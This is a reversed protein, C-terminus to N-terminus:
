KEAENDKVELEDEKELTVNKLVNFDKESNFKLFLEKNLYRLLFFLRDDGRFVLSKIELSEKDYILYCGDNWVHEFEDLWKSSELDLNNEIMENKIDEFITENKDHWVMLMPTPRLGPKYVLKYKDFSEEELEVAFELLEEEKTNVENHEISLDIESPIQKNSLFYQEQTKTKLQSLQNNVIMAEIQKLTEEKIKIYAELEDINDPLEPQQKNEYQTLLVPQQIIVNYNVSVQDEKIFDYEQKEDAVLDISNNTEQYYEDDIKPLDAESNSSVSDLDVCKTEEPEKVKELEESSDCVDFLNEEQPEESDLENEKEFDVNKIEDDLNTSNQHNITLDLDDSNVIPVNNQVNKFFTNEDIEKLWNNKLEQINQSMFENNIENKQIISTLTYLTVDNHLHLYTLVDDEEVYKKNLKFVIDKSSEDICFCIIKKANLISKIGASIIESGNNTLNIYHAKSEFDNYVFNGRSDIFFMIVDVGGSTNFTFLNAVDNEEKLKLFREEINEYNFNAFNINPLFKEKLEKDLSVLQKEKYLSLPFIKSKSWDLKKVKKFNNLVKYFDENWDIGIRSAPKFSFQLKLTKYLDKSIKKTNKLTKIIISM